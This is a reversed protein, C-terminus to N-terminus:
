RSRIGCRATRNWILRPESGNAWENWWSSGSGRVGATRNTAHVASWPTSSRGRLFGQDAGQLPVALWPRTAAKRALRVSPTWGPWGTRFMLPTSSGRLPQLAAPESEFAIPKWSRLHSVPCPPPSPLTSVMGDLMAM